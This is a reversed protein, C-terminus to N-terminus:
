VGIPMRGNLALIFVFTRILTSVCSWLRATQTVFVTRADSVPRCRTCAQVAVSIRTKRDLKPLILCSLIAVVFSVCMCVYMYVYEYMCLM